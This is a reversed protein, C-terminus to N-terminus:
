ENDQMLEVTMDYFVMFGLIETMKEEFAAEDVIEDDEGLPSTPVGENPDIVPSVPDM